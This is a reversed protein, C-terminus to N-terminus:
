NGLALLQIKDLIESQLIMENFEEERTSSNTILEHFRLIAKVFQNCAPSKIEKIINNQELIIIPEDNARPTFAKQITIKGKTGWIEYNCQYYNDFGFSLTSSIGNNSLFVSGYQETFDITASKLDLNNGIILKHAKLPYGAADFLVGGGIKRDYRFNEKELPPFGFKSSFSRIEGIQNKQIIESVIKHQTHYIFTYGEMLAVNNIKANNVMEYTENLSFSLSKECYVHLGKNLAINV